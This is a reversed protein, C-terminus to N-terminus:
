HNISPRPSHVLRTYENSLDEDPSRLNHISFTNTRVKRAIISETRNGYAEYLSEAADDSSEAWRLRKSGVNLLTRRSSDNMVELDGDSKSRAHNGFIGGSPPQLGVVDM